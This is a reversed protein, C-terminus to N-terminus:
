DSEEERMVLWCVGGTLVIIPLGGVGLLMPGFDESQTITTNEVVSTEVTANAQSLSVEITFDARRNQLPNGDGDETISLDVNWIGAAYMADEDGKRDDLWAQAESQSAFGSKNYVEIDLETTASIEDAQVTSSSTNEGVMMVAQPASLTLDWTFDPNTLGASPNSSTVTVVVDLISGNSADIEMSMSGGPGMRETSSDESINAASVTSISELDGIVEKDVEAVSAIGVIGALIVLGALGIALAMRQNQRNPELTDLKLPKDLWGGLKGKIESSFDDLRGSDQEPYEMQRILFFGIAPGLIAVGWILPYYSDSVILLLTGLTIFIGTAAIAQSSQFVSMSSAAMRPDAIEVITALFTFILWDSFIMVLLWVGLQVQWGLGMVSTVTFAAYSAGALVAWILMSKRRDIYDSILPGIIGLFGAIVFLWSWSAIKQTDWGWVEIQYSRFFSEMGDGIPMLLAVGLGLMATRNNFAGRLKVWWPTDEPWDLDRDNMAEEATDAVPMSDSDAGEDIGPGRLRAGERFMVAFIAAAALGVFVLISSAFYIGDFDVVGDAIFPSGFPVGGMWWSMIVLGPIVSSGIRYAYSITAGISGPNPLYEVMLAAIGQEAIVRPILALGLVICWLWPSAGVNIFALPLLLIIHGFVGLVIWHRRRGLPNDTYKDITVGWVPRIWFPIGTAWFFLPVILFKSLGYESQGVTIAWQNYFSLPMAFATYVVFFWLYRFKSNECIDVKGSKVLGRIDQLPSAEDDVLDAELIEDSM